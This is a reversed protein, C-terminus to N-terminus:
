RTQELVNNVEELVRETREAQVELLTETRAGARASVYVLSLVGVLFGVMVGLVWNVRKPMGSLGNFVVKGIATVEANVKEVKEELQSFRTKCVLQYMEHEPEGM